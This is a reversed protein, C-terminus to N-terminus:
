SSRAVSLRQSFVSPYASYARVRGEVVGQRQMVAVV